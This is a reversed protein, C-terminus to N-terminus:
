DEYEIDWLTVEVRPEESYFKLITCEVIQADDKYAIKNLSDLVIKIINDVDPKKTPRLKNLLMLFRNKKTSSKPIEYYALIKVGLPTNEGFYYKNKYAKKVSKEYAVTKAPTYTHKYSFRPRGKGTPKGTITFNVQMNNM